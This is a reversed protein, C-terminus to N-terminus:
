GVDGDQLKNEKKDLERRKRSRVIHKIWAIHKTRHVQLLPPITVLEISTHPDALDVCVTHSLSNTLYLSPPLFRILYLIKLIHIITSLFM